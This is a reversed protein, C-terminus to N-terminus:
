KSMAKEKLEKPMKEIAYRLSTRPMGSKNKLVYELVKAQHKDGAVKLLWGYGKQVMDEQDLLLIDCIEVVDKFFLGKRAPVILSVASARRVWKNKSKSWIKLKKIYNPFMEIFTGVTHNCFVDCKAWNDIYTKVWKEFFLFDSKVFEHNRRQVWDAGIMFEELYGSKFLVECIDFVEKKNFDKIYHYNEKSIKTTDSSSLGHCKIKEKFFRQASNQRKESSKEKLEKKVKTTVNM